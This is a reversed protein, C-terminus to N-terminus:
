IQMYPSLSIQYEKTIAFNGTKQLVVHHNQVNLVKTSYRTIRISLFM